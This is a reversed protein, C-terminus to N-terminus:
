EAPTQMAEGCERGGNEAHGNKERRDDDGGDGKRLLRRLGVRLELRFDLPLDSIELKAGRANRDRM